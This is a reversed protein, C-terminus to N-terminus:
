LLPRFEAGYDPHDLIKKINENVETENDAVFSSMEQKTNRNKKYKM